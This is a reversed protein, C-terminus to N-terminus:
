STRSTSAGGTDVVVWSADTERARAVGGAAVQAPSTSPETYVPLDMQRGLSVLQEVAAPRRLDAAVLLPSAGSSRRLHLALKAATTTKGSGQLGVLAVVTPPQSAPHLKHDGGSLTATLEDNVAKVVQASPNIGTLAETGVVRERVRAILDRAVRFNVDAELLAIRVEKLAADVDSETLRGRSSLRGFIGTLRETLAEFM